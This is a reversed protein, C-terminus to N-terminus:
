RHNKASAEASGARAAPRASKKDATTTPSPTEPTRLSPGRIHITVCHHQLRDLLADVLSKKNFLEYWDSTEL